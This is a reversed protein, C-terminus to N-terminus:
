LGSLGAEALWKAVYYEKLELTMVVWINATREDCVRDLCIALQETSLRDRFMTILNAAAKITTKRTASSGETVTLDSALQHFASALAQTFDPAFDSSEVAASKSRRSESDISAQSADRKGLTTQGNSADPPALSSSPDAAFSLDNDIWDTPEQSNQGGAKEDKYVNHSM